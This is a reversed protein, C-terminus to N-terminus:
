LWKVGTQMEERDWVPDPGWAATLPGWCTTLDSSTWHYMCGLGQLWPRLGTRWCSGPLTQFLVSPLPILFYLTTQTHKSLLHLIVVQYFCILLFKLWSEKRDQEKLQTMKKTEGWGWQEKTVGHNKIQGDTQSMPQQEVESDWCLSKM